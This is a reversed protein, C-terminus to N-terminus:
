FAPGSCKTDVQESSILLQASCSLCSTHNWEAKTENSMHQKEYAFMQFVDCDSFGYLKSKHLSVSVLFSFGPHLADEKANWPHFFTRSNLIILYNVCAFWVSWKCSDRRVLFDKDNALTHNHYCLRRKLPKVPVLPSVKSQRWRWLETIVDSTEHRLKQVPPLFLPILSLSLFFYHSNTSLLTWASSILLCAM